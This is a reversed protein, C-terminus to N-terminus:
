PSSSRHPTRVSVTSPTYPLHPPHASPDDGTWLAIYGPAYVALHGDNQVILYSGPHSGTGASWVQSGGADYIAFDGDAEMMARGATEGETESSWARVRDSDYLVLNGDRQYVLQFKGDPSSVSQDPALVQGADLSPYVIDGNAIAKNIAYMFTLPRDDPVIASPGELWSSYDYLDAVLGRSRYAAAQSTVADFWRQDDFSTAVNAGWLILGFGLGAAHARAKLAVLPEVDLARAWDHDIEIYDVAPKGDCCALADIWAGLSRDDQAPFPEIDVVRAGPYRARLLDAFARTQNIAYDVDGKVAGSAAAHLPEDLFFVGIRAGNKVMRDWPARRAMFCGRASRCEPGPKLVGVEVGLAIGASALNSFCTRQEGDTMMDVSWDANALFTTRRGVSLWQAPNLCATKFTSRRSGYSELHETPKLSLVTATQTVDITM